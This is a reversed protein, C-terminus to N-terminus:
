IKLHLFKLRQFMKHQIFCLHCLVVIKVMRCSVNKLEFLRYAIKKLNLKAVRKQDNSLICNVRPDMFIAALLAENELLKLERIKIQALLKKKIFNTSKECALKLEMWIIFFESFVLNKDQLKLTAEYSEKFADIYSEMWDWDADVYIYSETTLFDKLDVLKTMMLYTSNWRTIVDLSPINKKHEILLRRNTETRLMKCLTRCSSIKDNIENVKNVDTVCLQLTHAACRVLHINALEITDLENMVSEGQTDDNFLCDETADNLVQVAKIMNRGNDSTISFIQEVNIDYDMLIDLIKQKIYAGTHSEELQIMGLTKVVIETTYLSADILQLNVGLISKDMRTAVDIKLSVLKDKVLAKINEKISHEKVKVFNIVNRSTIPNMGLSSYIPNMIDMFGESDLFLFPKGDTTVIKIISSIISEESTLYSIKRKKVSEQVQSDGSKSWENFIDGHKITLHRRLNTLYTGSMKFGCVNCMSKNEEAIFRFFNHVKKIEDKGMKCFSYHEACVSKVFAILMYM